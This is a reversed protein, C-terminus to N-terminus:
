EPCQSTADAAPESPRQLQGAVLDRLMWAALGAIIDKSSGPAAVYRRPWLMPHFLRIAVDHPLDLLVEAVDGPTVVRDGGLGLRSKLQYQLWGPLESLRYHM